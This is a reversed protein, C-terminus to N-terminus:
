EKTEKTALIALVALVANMVDQIIVDERHEVSRIYGRAAPSAMRVGREYGRQEAAAVLDARVYETCDDCFRITDACCGTWASGIIDTEIAWIREPATM